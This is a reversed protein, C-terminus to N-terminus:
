WLYAHFSHLHDYTSGIPGFINDMCRSLITQGPELKSSLGLHM